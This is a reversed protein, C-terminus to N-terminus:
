PIAVPDCSTKITTKYGFEHSNPHFCCTASTTALV